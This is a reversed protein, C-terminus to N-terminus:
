DAMWGTARVLGAMIPVLADDIAAGLATLQDLGAAAAGRAV